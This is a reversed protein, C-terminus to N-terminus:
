VRERCSARGIECYLRDGVKIPAFFKLAQDVQVVQADNTAINAWEFFAAVAKYGFVSIFTLPALLGDYGLEEAAKDEHFPPFDNKVAVAYERIKEREVIYHDPYRFRKGIADQGLSM